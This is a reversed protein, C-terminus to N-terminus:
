TPKILPALADKKESNTNTLLYWHIPEKPAGHFLLMAMADLQNHILANLVASDSHEEGARCVPAGSSILLGLLDIDGRVAAAVVLHYFNENLKLHFFRLLLRVTAPSKQIFEDTLLSELAGAEALYEVIHHHHNNAASVLASTCTIGEGQCFAPAGATVLCHLMNLQGLSAAWVVLPYHEENLRLPESEILQMLANPSVKYLEAMFACSPRNRILLALMDQDGNVAAQRALYGHWSQLMMGNDVMWQANTIDQDRVYRRMLLTAFPETQVIKRGALSFPHHMWSAISSIIRRAAAVPQFRSSGAQSNELTEPVIDVITHHSAERVTIENLM